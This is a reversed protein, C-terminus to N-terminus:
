GGGGRWLYIGVIATTLAAFMFLDTILAVNEKFSRNAVGIHAFGAAAYFLAAWIGIPMAFSPQLLSLLAVIGAGLNSIGLEKVLTCVGDGELKFIERATFRPQLFQRAGALGLRIGIGWFVFWKLATDLVINIPQGMAKWVTCGIPLLITTLLVFVFYM